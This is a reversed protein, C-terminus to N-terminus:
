YQANRNAHVTTAVELTDYEPKESWVQKSQVITNVYVDCFVFIVM